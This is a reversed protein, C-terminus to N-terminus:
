FAHEQQWQARYSKLRRVIQPLVAGALVLLGALATMSSLGETGFLILQGILTTFIALFSYSLIYEVAKHSLLYYYIYYPTAVLIISFLVMQLLVSFSYQGLTSVFVLPWTMLTCLASLLFFFQGERAVINEERKYRESVMSFASYSLVAFLTFLISVTPWNPAYFILVLIGSIVLAWTIILSRWYRQNLITSMIVGAATMPITYHLPETSRLSMYTGLAICVMLGVSAWLTRSFISLPTQTVGGRYRHIFIMVASLITLSWFRVLTMDVATIDHQVILYHAVAPDIGQLTIIVLFATLLRIRGYPPDFRINTAGLEKLDFEISSRLKHSAPLHVRVTWFRSFPRYWFRFSRFHSKYKNFTRMLDETKMIVDSLSFSLVMNPDEKTSRREFIAEYAEIPKLRGDAIATYTQELSEYGIAKLGQHISHRDFEEILGRRKEAMVEQLLQKGASYKKLDSQQSLAERIKATTLGTKAWQLWDRNVTFRRVLEVDLSDGHSLPYSFAVQKGNVRITKLRLAKDQFCYFAGDLASAGSPLLVTHDGTGHIMISEGLIDSQLSTWFDESRDTTDQSLPAIRHTWPLYETVGLMMSDFCRLTVGRRAYNQMDTTRIKCRVRMGGGMIITTHLGTYGNIMPSNIFDQFSLTERKWTQHLAGLTQYCHNIDDCIFVITQSTIGTVIADEAALQDNLSHWPKDEQHIRAKLEPFRARLNSKLMDIVQTSNQKNRLRLASLKTFLKPDLIALALAELEEQIDQMCLRDAIKVYVEMTEEALMKQKEQSLYKATQINHLRDALKIVMIRVDKKLLKFMKRLTEIREDLTPAHAVDAADLKTVGDILDAVDGGFADRIEKLTMPTDEVADHLLAAIVTDADAGMTILSSAVAVPHTFYPEGSARKQGAHTRKGLEFGRHIREIEPASFRRLHPHFAEWQM